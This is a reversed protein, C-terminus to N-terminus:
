QVPATAPQEDPVFAINFFRIALSRPDPHSNAERHQEHVFEMEDIQATDGMRPPMTFILRCREAVSFGGIKENGVVIALSQGGFEALGELDMEVQIRTARPLDPLALISRSGLSWIHEKEQGSWGSRVYTWANGGDSFDIEWSM